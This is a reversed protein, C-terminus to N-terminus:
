AIAGWAHVFPMRTFLRGESLGLDGKERPCVDRDDQDAVRGQPIFEAALVLNRTVFRGRPADRRWPLSSLSPMSKRQRRKASM